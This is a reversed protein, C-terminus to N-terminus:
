LLRVESPSRGNVTLTPYVTVTSRSDRSWTQKTYTYKVPLQSGSQPSLVVATSGAYDGMSHVNFQLDIGTIDAHVERANGNGIANAADTRWNAHIGDMLRKLEGGDIPVAVLDPTVSGASAEGTLTFYETEEDSIGLFRKPRYTVKGRVTIDVTINFDSRLPNYDSRVMLNGTYDNYSFILSTQRRQPETFAVSSSESGLTSLVEIKLIHEGAVIYPMEFTYSESRAFDLDMSGGFTNSMYKIDKLVSGDLYFTVNYTTVSPGMLNTLVVRTYELAASADIRIGIENQNTNPLDLTYHRSVGGTGTFEMEMRHQRSPSLTPLIFIVGSRPSLSVDTGSDVPSSGSSFLKVTPDSDISYSFRFTGESGGKLTLRLTYAMYESNWVVDTGIDFGLDELELTSDFVSCSAAGLFIAGAMLITKVIRM